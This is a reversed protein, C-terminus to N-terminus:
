LLDCRLKQCTAHLSDVGTALRGPFFCGLPMVGAGPEVEEVVYVNRNTCLFGQEAPHTDGQMPKARRKDGLGFPPLDLRLLPSPSTSDPLSFSSFGKCLKGDTDDLEHQDPAAGGDDDDEGNGSGSDNGDDNEMDCREGDDGDEKDGNYGDDDHDHERKAVTMAMVMTMKRTAMAMWSRMSSRMPRGRMLVAASMNPTAAWRGRRSTEKKAKMALLTRAVQVHGCTLMLETLYTYLRYRNKPPGWQVLVPGVVGSM